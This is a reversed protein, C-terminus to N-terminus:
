GPRKWNRSISTTSYSTSANDINTTRYSGTEFTNPAQDALADVDMVNQDTLNLSRLVARRHEDRLEAIVSM